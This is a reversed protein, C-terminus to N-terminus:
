GAVASEVEADDLPEDDYHEDSYYDDGEDFEDDSAPQHEASLPTSRARVAAVYVALGYGLGINLLAIFAVYLIM